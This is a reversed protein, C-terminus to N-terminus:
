IGPATLDRSAATYTFGSEDAPPMRSIRSPALGPPPLRSTGEQRRAARGRRDRSDAQRATQNRADSTYMYMATNARPCIGPTHTDRTAHCTSPRPNPAKCSSQPSRTPTPSILISSTLSAAQHNSLDAPPRPRSSTSLNAVTTRQPRIQLAHQDPTSSPKTQHRPSAHRPPKRHYM